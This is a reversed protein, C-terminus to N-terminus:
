NVCVFCYDKSLPAPTSGPLTCSCQGAAGPAGARCMPGGCENCRCPCACNPRTGRCPAPCPCNCNPPSGTCGAPCVPPCQANAPVVTGDPCTQGPAPTPPCPASEPVPVDGPCFRLKDPCPVNPPVAIGNPCTKVTPPKKNALRIPAREYAGSSCRAGRARSQFLIDKNRVPESSCIAGDGSELARSELIPVYLVDLLPDEFAMNPCDKLGYHINGAKVVSGPVNSCNGEANHSLITNGVIDGPGPAAFRLGLARNRAITVNFASVSDVDVAGTSPASTNQVILSNAIVQRAGSTLNRGYIAGGSFKAKNRKFLSHTVSLSKGTWAVAGGHTDSSNELFIGGKISIRVDNDSPLNGSIAGAGRGSNRIFRNYNLHFQIAPTPMGDITPRGLHLGGAGNSSWENRNDTFVNRTLTITTPAFPSEFVMAGQLNRDFTSGSVATNGRTRVLWIGYTNSQFLSRRVTGRDMQLSLSNNIFRTQDINAEGESNLAIATTSVFSSNRVTIDKLAVIPAESGEITVNELVLSGEAHVVTARFRGSADPLPSVRRGGTLRINRLTLPGSAQNVFFMTVQRNGADLTVNNGGDIITPRVAQMLGRNVVSITTNPPCAFTVLGGRAMAQALNRDGSGEHSSSCATVVNPGDSPPPMPADQASSKLALSALCFLATLCAGLCHRSMPLIGALLTSAGFGVPRSRDRSEFRHPCGKM